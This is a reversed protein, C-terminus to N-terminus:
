DALRRAYAFRHDKIISEALAGDIIQVQGLLDQLLVIHGPDFLFFPDQFLIRGPYLLSYLDRIVGSGPIVGNFMVVGLLFSLSARPLPILDKNCLMSASRFVVEPSSFDETTSATVLISRM